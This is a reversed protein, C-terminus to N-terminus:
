QDEVEILLKGIKSGALMRRMAEPFQDLGKMVDELAILSGEAHWRALDARAQEYRDAFDYLIFGEMRARKILLQRYNVPGKVGSSSAYQSVSGCIVVRARLAL